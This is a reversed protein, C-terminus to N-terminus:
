GGLSVGDKRPDAAGHLLGDKDRLVAHAGGFDSRGGLEGATTAPLKYGAERLFTEIAIPMGKEIALTNGAELRWRPADIASQLTQGWALVRSLIQIQGQPQMLGGVVGM